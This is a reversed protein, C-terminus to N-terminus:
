AAQAEAYLKQFFQDVATFVTKADTTNNAIDRLESAGPLGHAYWVIHKRALRMAAPGYHTIMDDLHSRMIDHRARISPAARMKRGALVDGIQAVLWPRGQAGRGVMVGASGSAAMAQTATDACRIDGNAIVPISVADVVAAIKHWDAKGAYMQCRTRGHVALMSLGLDEAIRGFEAANLTGGDWGLRMKLTVPISVALKVAKMIAAALKPDRMLASGSLKGIVKKAPCGMNIDIFSAGLGECLKAAEAMIQPDWGALQISLPAEELAAIKLKRMENRVQQLAAASAVMETVVLGGGCRRVVRRFPLDTVGSMPALIAAHPLTVGAVVLPSNSPSIQAM